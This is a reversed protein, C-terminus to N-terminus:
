DPLLPMLYRVALDTRDAPLIPFVGRFYAMVETAVNRHYFGPWIERMANTIAQRASDQSDARGDRALISMLEDELESVLYAILNDCYWEYPTTLSYDSVIHRESFQPQELYDETEGVEAYTDWLWVDWLEPAQGQFLMLPESMGTYVFQPMVPLANEFAGDYYGKRTWGFSEILKLYVPAPFDTRGNELKQDNENFDLSMHYNHGMEHVLLGLLGIDHSVKRGPNYVTLSQTQSFVQASTNDEVVAALLKGLLATKEVAVTRLTPLVPVQELPKRFVKTIIDDAARALKVDFLANREVLIIKHRKFLRLQIEALEPDQKHISWDLHDPLGNDNVDVYTGDQDPIGDRDTDQGGRSSDYPHSDYVNRIGDGDVDLDGELYKGFYDSIRYDPLGDGDTDRLALAKLDDRGGYLESLYDLAESAQQEQLDIFAQLEDGAPLLVQLPNNESSKQNAPARYFVHELSSLQLHNLLWPQLEGARMQELQNELVQRWFPVEQAGGSSVVLMPAFAALVWLLSRVVLM